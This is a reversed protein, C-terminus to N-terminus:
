ETDWRRWQNRLLYYLSERNRPIEPFTNVPIPSIRYPFVTYYKLMAKMTKSDNRWPPPPCGDRQHIYEPMDLWEYIPFAKIQVEARLLPQILHGLHDRSKAIKIHKYVFSFSALPYVNSNLSLYMIAVICCSWLLLLLLSTYQKM